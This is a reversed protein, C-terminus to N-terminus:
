SGTFPNYFRNGDHFTLWMGFVFFAGAACVIITDRRTFAKSSYWSRSRHKGFGRLEMAQSISDIRELSSFILPLLIAAAGKLRKLLTVKRSLEVGRAQQARSIDRFDRQIDPIYRLTLSVAYAVTYPIGIRNLSSAFESPQTTVILLIAVPVMMSYKLLVNFEYFLQEATITYRGIGEFLLTRSGYVLVGQEPEFLYIALLNLVMFVVLFNFIFSIESFRTRSLLFLISSVAAMVLMIRTDYSTMALVSWLMFFIFKTTGCITHIPSKRQIYSLMFTSM